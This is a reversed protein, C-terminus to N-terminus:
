ITQYISHRNFHQHCLHNYGVDLLIAVVTHLVSCSSVFLLLTVKLSVYMPYTAPQIQLTVKGAICPSLRLNITTNQIMATYDHSLTYEMM